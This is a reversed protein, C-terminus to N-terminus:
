WSIRRGSRQQLRLWSMRLGGDITPMVEAEQTTWGDRSLSGEKAEILFFREDLLGVRRFVAASTTLCCGYVIEVDTIAPAPAIKPRDFFSVSGPADFICGDMMVVDPEDMWHVLPGIVDYGAAMGALLRTILNPAVTTDNNLLM